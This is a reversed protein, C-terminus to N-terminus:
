LYILFIARYFLQSLLYDCFLRFCGWRLFCGWRFDIAVVFFFVYRFFRELTFRIYLDRFFLLM